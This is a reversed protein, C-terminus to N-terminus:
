KENRPTSPTWGWERIMEEFSNFDVETGPGPNDYCTWSYGAELINKRFTWVVDSKDFILTGNQGGVGKILGISPLVVGSALHLAYNAIFELGFRGCGMKLHRIHETRSGSM